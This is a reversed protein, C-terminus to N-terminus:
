KSGLLTGSAFIISNVFTSSAVIVYRMLFSSSAGSGKIIKASPELTVSDLTLRLNLEKMSSSSRAVLKLM